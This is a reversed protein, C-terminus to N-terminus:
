TVIRNGVQEVVQVWGLGSPCDGLGKYTIRVENGVLKGVPEGGGMGIWPWSPTVSSTHHLKMAAGGRAGDVAGTPAWPVVGMGVCTMYPEAHTDSPNPIGVGCGYGNV